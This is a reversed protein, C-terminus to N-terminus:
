LAAYLVGVLYTVIRSQAGDATLGMAALPWTIRASFNEASNIGVQKDNASWRM